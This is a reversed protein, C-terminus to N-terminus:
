GVPTALSRLTDKAAAPQDIATEQAKVLSTDSDIM